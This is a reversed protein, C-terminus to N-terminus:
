SGMEGSPGLSNPLGSKARLVERHLGIVTVLYIAAVLFPILVFRSEPFELWCATVLVVRVVAHYLCVKTGYVWGIVPWHLSMGIAFALPAIAINTLAAIMSVPYSLFMSTLAPFFLSSLPSSVMLNSKMPKSLILGLPFILGSGFLAAYTWRSQDLLVGAAGLLCWYIAGAMPLSIGANASILLRRKEALLLRTLDSSNM